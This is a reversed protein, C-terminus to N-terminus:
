CAALKERDARKVELSAIKTRLLTSSVDISTGEYLSLTMGSGLEIQLAVTSLRDDIWHEYNEVTGRQVQWTPLTVLM